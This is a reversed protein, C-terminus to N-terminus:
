RAELASENARRELDDAAQEFRGELFARIMAECVIDISHQDLGTAESRWRKVFARRASEEDSDSRRTSTVPPALYARGEPSSFANQCARATTGLPALRDVDLAGVLQTALLLALFM